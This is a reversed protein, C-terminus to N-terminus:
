VLMDSRPLTTLIGPEIRDMLAIAPAAQRVDNCHLSMLSKFAGQSQRYRLTQKYHLLFFSEAASQSQEKHKSLFTTIYALSQFKDIKSAKLLVRGIQMYPHFASVVPDDRFLLSKESSCHGTLM